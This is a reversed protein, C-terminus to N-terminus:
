ADRSGERRAAGEEAARYLSRLAWLLLACLLLAGLNGVWGAFAGLAYPAQETGFDALTRSTFLVSLGASVKPFLGGEYVLLSWLLWYLGGVAVLSVVCVAGLHVPDYFPEDSDDDSFFDLVGAWLRLALRPIDPM